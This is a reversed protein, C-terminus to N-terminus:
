DFLNGYPRSDNEVGIHNAVSHVEKTNASFNGGSLVYDAFICKTKAEIESVSYKDANLKLDIFDENDNLLQYENKNFIQDKEERLLNADYEDKFAKLEAFSAKLAELADVESQTLWEAYVQVSDGDLSIADDTTEYGKRYYKGTEFEEYIFYNDYVEIIWVNSDGMLKYLGNRIDDHSVQYSVISYEHQKVDSDDESSDEVFVNDDIEETQYESDEVENESENVINLNDFHNAFMKDMEDDTMGAVDFTVDEATISYKQLLEEFHNVEENVGETKNNITFMLLTENIKDLTEILKENANFCLSNSSVSFDKIDLKAGQMGPEIKTGDIESGLCTCGLFYFSKIELYGETVNYEMDRISLEASVDTGGKLKIIEATKTYTEPIAVNAVVYTKDNEEDYELVPDDSTFTGVQQEIYVINGNDDIDIDHGRFDYSGDELQHIYALLPRYCLSPLADSMSKESIYSGNRNLLTHCVRVRGFLLGENNDNDLSEFQMKAPVHVVLQENENNASFTKLNNESCFRVLDDLTLLKKSM